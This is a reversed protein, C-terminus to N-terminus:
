GSLCLSFFSVGSYIDYVFSVINLLLFVRLHLKFFLLSSNTFWFGIHTSLGSRILTFPGHIFTNFNTILKLLCQWSKRTLLGKRKEYTAFFGKGLLPGM